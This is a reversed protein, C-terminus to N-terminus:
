QITVNFTVEIDTEGGANNINGDKVGAATKNPLHRLTVVLTGTSVAGTRFETELGIPNQDADADKYSVSLNLGNSPRFFFQHDEDEELIEATIDENENENLLTLIGTYTTNAALPTGQTIVPPNGGDGDLDRFQFVVPAAGGVLALSLTTIEEEENETEPEDDDCSVLSMGVFVVALFAFLKLFKNM